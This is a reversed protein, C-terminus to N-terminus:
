SVTQVVKALGMEEKSSQRRVMRGGGQFVNMLDEKLRGLSPPFMNRAAASRSSGALELPLAFM